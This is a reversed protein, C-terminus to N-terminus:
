LYYVNLLDDIFIEVMIVVKVEDNNMIVFDGYEGILVIVLVVLNYNVCNVLFVIGFVCIMM